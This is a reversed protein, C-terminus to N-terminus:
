GDMVGCHVQGMQVVGVRLADHSLLEVVLHVAGLPGPLVQVRQAPGDAGDAAGHVLLVLLPEQDGDDLHTRWRPLWVVLSHALTQEMVGNRPNQVRKLRLGM